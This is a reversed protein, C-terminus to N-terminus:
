LTILAVSSAKMAIYIWDKSLWLHQKMVLNYLPIYSLMLSKICGRDTKRALRGLESALQAGVLHPGVGVPGAAHGDGDDLQLPVRRPGDEGDEDGHQADHGGGKDDDGEHAVVVRGDHTRRSALHTVHQQRADEQAVGDSEQHDGRRVHAHAREPADEKAKAHAEAVGRQEGLGVPYVADKLLPFLRDRRGPSFPPPQASLKEGVIIQATLQNFPSDDWETEGEQEREKQKEWDSLYVVKLWSTKM